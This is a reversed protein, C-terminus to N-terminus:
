VITVIVPTAKKTFVTMGKCGHGAPQVWAGIREAAGQVTVSPRLILGHYEMGRPRPPNDYHSFITGVFLCFVFGCAPSDAGAIEDAYRPDDYELRLSSLASMPKVLVKSVWIPVRGSKLRAVQIACMVGKVVIKGGAVRGFQAMGDPSCSAEIVSFRPDQKYSRIDAWKALRPKTEYEWSLGVGQEGHVVSAWSWSPPSKGGAERRNPRTATSAPDWSWLLDRALSSKWLGALYMDGAPMHKSFWSALGGLAPLRDSEFTLDLLCYDEVVTRWLGHLQSQDLTSLTSIRSKSASWGDGGIKMRDLKACECRQKNACDWMMENAHFHVSRPSLNREQYVWGRQILPATNRHMGIWRFTQMSDHSSNLALRVKMSSGYLQPDDGSSVTFSQVVCKRTKSLQKANERDHSVSRNFRDAWELSNRSTWRPQLFGEAGSPSRTTAINLYCNAYIDAMVASQEEWDRSDGQIICLSDIWLYRLNLARTLRVADRFTQPMDDLAIGRMRDSITERTTVLIQDKGWCHSLAVYLDERFETEILVIKGNALDLVRKPLPRPNSPSASTQCVKHHKACERLWTTITAAYEEPSPDSPVDGATGISLYSSPVDGRPVNFVELEFEEKWEHKGNADPADIDCRVILKLRDPNRTKVAVKSNATDLKKRVTGDKDGDPEEELSDSWTVSNSLTVDLSKDEDSSDQGEDYNLEGDDDNPTNAVAVSYMLAGCEERSTCLSNALGSEYLFTEVADKLLRCTSCPGKITSYPSRHDPKWVGLSSARLDHAKMWHRPVQGMSCANETLERIRAFDLSYCLLCIPLSM